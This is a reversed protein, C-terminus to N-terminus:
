FYLHPVTREAAQFSPLVRGKGLIVPAAQSLDVQTVAGTSHCHGFVGKNPLPMQPHSLSLPHHNHNNLM